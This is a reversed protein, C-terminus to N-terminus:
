NKQVTCMLAHMSYNSQRNKVLKLSKRCVISVSTYAREQVGKQNRTLKRDSVLKVQM